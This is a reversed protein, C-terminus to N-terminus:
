ILKNVKEESDLFLNLKNQYIKLNEQHYKDIHKLHQKFMRKLDKKWTKPKLTYFADYGTKMTGINLLCHDDKYDDKMLTTSIGFAVEPHSISIRFNDSDRRLEIEGVECYDIADVAGNLETPEELRHAGFSLRIGFIKDKHKLSLITGNKPKTTKIEIAKLNIDVDNKLKILEEKTLKELLEKNM